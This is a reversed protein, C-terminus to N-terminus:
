KSTIKRNQVEKAAVGQQVHMDAGNGSAADDGTATRKARSNDLSVM